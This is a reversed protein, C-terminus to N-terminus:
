SDADDYGGRDTPAPRSPDGDSVPPRPALVRRAISPRLLAAPPDVLGAVRTFAMSLETDDTSAAHLRRMYRGLLRQVPSPEGPVVPLSLDAGTVIQWAPDVAAAVARHLRRPRVRRHRRLHADLAETSLAALTMGQGYIPNVSCFGDGLAVLGAPLHRHREYHRRTSASFRFPVPEGLPEATAAIDHVDNSVERAFAAFGRRDLPPRDDGIGGVTVMGTGNEVVAVAAARPSDPTMGHIVAIAGDLMDRDIRFPQTAYSLALQVRTEAPPDIGIGDLWRPLRSLRGSADVVLDAPLTEVADEGQRVVEVGTVQRRNRSPILGVVACRDRVGVRPDQVVRRRVHHELFGRSASVAILGSPASRLRHGSVHMRVDDLVDGVAAGARAMTETLGPFRTELVQQGRALLAHLQRGQPVGQRAQPGRPLRDRDVITVSEYWRALVDAALLGAMGAGVVIAHEGIPDGPHPTVVAGAEEGSTAANRTPNVGPHSWHRPGLFRARRM